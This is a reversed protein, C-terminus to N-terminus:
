KGVELAVIRGSALTHVWNPYRTCSAQIGVLCEEAYLSNLVYVSDDCM